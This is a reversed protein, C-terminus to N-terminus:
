QDAPTDRAVLRRIALPIAASGALAVASVALALAAGDAGLWGPAQWLGLASLGAALGCAFAALLMLLPMWPLSSM